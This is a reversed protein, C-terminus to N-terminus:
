GKKAKKAEKSIIQGVGQLDKGAGEITSCASLIITTFALTLMILLTKKMNLGKINHKSLLRYRYNQHLAYSSNKKILLSVYLCSVLSM